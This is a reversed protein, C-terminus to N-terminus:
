EGGGEVYDMDSQELDNRVTDDKDRVGANNNTVGPTVNSVDSQHEYASKFDEESLEPMNLISRLYNQLKLDKSIDLGMSRMLLSIEKLKPTKLVGPVIKPGEKFGNINLLTPLAQTNFVDAINALQSELASVLISEKSDALAFSGTNNHGILVLDSLLAM